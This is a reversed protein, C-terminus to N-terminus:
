ICLYKYEDYGGGNGGGKVVFGLSTKSERGVAVFELVSVCEEATPSFITGDRQETRLPLGRRPPQM